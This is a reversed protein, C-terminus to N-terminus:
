RSMVFHSVDETVFIDLIVGIGIGEVLRDTIPISGGDGVHIEHELRLRM